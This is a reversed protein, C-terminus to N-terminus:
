AVNDKVGALAKDLKLALIKDAQVSTIISDNFHM